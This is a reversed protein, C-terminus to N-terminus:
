FFICKIDKCLYMRMEVGSYMYCLKCTHIYIYTHIGMYMIYTHRGRKIKVKSAREYNSESIHFDPVM